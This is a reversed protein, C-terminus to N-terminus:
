AATGGVTMGRRAVHTSGVVGACGPREQRVHRDVHRLREGIADVLRLTEPGNGVLQAARVPRTIEGHEILYGETVGFVFDGTATDVQGGGLQVCYLGYETDRIIDLPESEGQPLYTNTMRVMPLNRYTERRGNGSSARGHKRARVQDWMYDTLVGKDILVNQHAPHGEDDIAFTGWERPYTGDDIVTVLPSAVQTGVLNKFVSADRDVLDAELGHGCAEHFLVSGAGKAMVVPLQGSPAPVAELLTLARRASTRAIDEVSIEDYLEFGMSRGPGEMGTQLGTDGSAVSQVGFRTRSQDDTALLGDSNAVLIRRRGEAYSASVSKIASGTSRAADDARRLLELKQEKPM